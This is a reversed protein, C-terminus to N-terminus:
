PSSVANLEGPTKAREIATVAAKYKIRFSEAAADVKDASIREMGDTLDDLMQKQRARKLAPLRATDIALRETPTAPRVTNGAVVRYHAPENAVSDLGAPNKTWGKAVGDPTHISRHIVGTKPDIFDAM